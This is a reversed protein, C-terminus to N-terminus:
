QIKFELKVRQGLRVKAVGNVMMPQYKWKKIANLAERNFVRSPNSEEININEPKGALGIDFSVVVYGEIGRQLAKRPYNPDERHLPMVQQTQGLQVQPLEQKLLSNEAHLSTAIPVVVELNIDKVTLNLNMDLVPELAPVDMSREINPQALLQEPPLPSPKPPEPLERSKRQSKQETENMFFDFTLPESEPKLEKVNLDVLWAMLGVLSYSLLLAVPFALILRLM